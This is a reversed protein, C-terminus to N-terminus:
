RRRRARLASVAVCLLVIVVLGVAWHYETGPILEAYNVPTATPTPALVNSAAHSVVLCAFSQALSGLATASTRLLARRALYILAATEVIPAALTDLPWPLDVLLWPVVLGVVFCATTVTADLAVSWVGRTGM